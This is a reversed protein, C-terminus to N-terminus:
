CMSGVLYIFFVSYVFLTNEVIFFYGYFLIPVYQIWSERIVIMIAIIFIFVGHNEHCEFRRYFIFILKCKWKNM